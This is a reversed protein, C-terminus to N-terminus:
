EVSTPLRPSGNVKVKREEDIVVKDGVNLIGFDQDKFQFRVKSEDVSDLQITIDDGLAFRKKASSQQPDIFDAKMADDTSAGSSKATVSFDIGFVRATGIGDANKVFDGATSPIRPTSSAGCGALSLLVLSFIKQM